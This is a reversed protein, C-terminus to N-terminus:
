VSGVVPAVTVPVTCLTSKVEEPGVSVISPVAPIEGELTM